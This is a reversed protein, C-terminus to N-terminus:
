VSFYVTKRQMSNVGFHDVEELVTWILVFKLHFTFLIVDGDRTYFVSSRFCWIKPFALLIKRMHLASKIFNLEIAFLYLISFISAHIFSRTTFICLPPKSSEQFNLSNAYATINM